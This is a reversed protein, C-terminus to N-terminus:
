KKVYPIGRRNLSTEIKFFSNHPEKLAFRKGLAKILTDPNKVRLSDMLRLTDKVSVIMSEEKSPDEDWGCRTIIFQGKVVKAVISYENSKFYTAEPVNEKWIVEIEPSRQKKTDSKAMPLLLQLTIQIHSLGNVSFIDTCGYIYSYNTIILVLGVDSTSKMGSNRELIVPVQFLM